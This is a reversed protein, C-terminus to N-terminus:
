DVVREQRHVNAGDGTLLVDATLGQVPAAPMSAIMMASRDDAM